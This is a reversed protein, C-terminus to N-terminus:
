YDASSISALVEFSDVDAGERSKVLLANLAKALSPVERGLRKALYAVKKPTLIIGRQKAMTFILENLQADDPSSLLFGEGPRLRSRVHDDIAFDSVQQGTLLLLGAQSRRLAEVLNVFEGSRDSSLTALYKDADDVIIVTESRYKAGVGQKVLFDQLSDGDVLRVLAGKRELDTALKISLHTKGSQAAGYAVCIRFSETLMQSCCFDYIERVGQHVIFADASYPLRPIIKLPIQDM